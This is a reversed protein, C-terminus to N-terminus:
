TLCAEFFGITRVAIKEWTFEDALSRAGRSLRARAGPADMLEALAQALAAPDEPPVLRVNEGDFLGSHPVAPTTSVVPCGHALAAMLSGRRLSAGDRYPLAVADCALLHASVEAARIFGTRLIRGGLGLRDILSQVRAGYEVDTPDSSGAPAGILILRVPRGANALRALAQALTEGGKSASLFGFYGILFEDASLGLRARWAGRSYAPPPDLAINSGIPIQTLRRIGAERQLAHADEPDTVIVGRAGRALALLVRRRLRGAKPFLYPARLDHFTAVAPMDILRPLFHIPLTMGYAAAQYQLNVIDLGLQGVLRRVRFLSPWDWRRVLRHVGVAGSEGQAELAQGTIVHVGHGLRALAGGLARTFDGVGGRMPPYEGTILGIKM